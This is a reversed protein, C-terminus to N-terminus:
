PEVEEAALGLEVSTKEAVIRCRYVRFKGDSGIPIAAIDAATFEAVLVRYGPRWARLCWDLSALNIGPGCDQREDTNADAVEYAQGVEYRIGGNFPGEGDVTILKYARVLGPQDRLLHLPTTLLPNIGRAGSLNAGSLNADSLYAGSLNAHSLNAGSLNAGSLYAGRLYADHLDAHSLNAGRLDGGSLNAGSLNAHSLCADRLDADSLNADRLDAGSKAAQELATRIDAADAEFLLSGDRHLIRITSVV